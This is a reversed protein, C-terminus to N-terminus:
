QPSRLHVLFYQGPRWDRAEFELKQNAPLLYGKVPDRLDRLNQKLEVDMEVEDIKSCSNIISFRVKPCFRSIGLRMPVGIKSWQWFAFRYDVKEGKPIEFNFKQEFQPWDSNIVGGNELSSIHDQHYNSQKSMMSLEIIEGFIESKDQIDDLFIIIWPEFPTNEYRFLGFLEYKYDIRIKFADLSASYDQINFKIHAETAYSSAKLIVEETYRKVNIPIDCANFLFSIRSSLSQKAPDVNFLLLTGIGLSSFFILDQLYSGVLSIILGQDCILGFIVCEENNHVYYLYFALIINLSLLFIVLIFLKSYKQFKFPKLKM